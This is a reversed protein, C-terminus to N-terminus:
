SCLFMRTRRNCCSFARQDQIVESVFVKITTSTRNSFQNIDSPSYWRINRLKLRSTNPRMVWKSWDRALFFIQHIVITSIPGELRHTERWKLNAIHISINRVFEVDNITLLDITLEVKTLQNKHTISNGNIRTPKEHCQNNRINEEFKPPFNAYTPRHIATLLGDSWFIPARQPQLVWSTSLFSLINRLNHLACKSKNDFRFGFYGYFSILPFSFTVLLWHSRLTM